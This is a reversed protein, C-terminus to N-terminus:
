IKEIRVPGELYGHPNRLVGRQLYNVVKIKIERSEEPSIYKVIWGDRVGCERADEPNIEIYEDPEERPMFASNKLMADNHWFAAIRDSIVFLPFENYQKLLRASETFKYSLPKGDLVMIEQILDKKFVEYNINAFELSTKAIERMIEKPSSFDPLKGLKKAIDLIIQWGPRANYLPEVVKTIKQVKGETNTFTGEQEAFSVIPLIVNALQATQTMFMDQVVLFECSKLNKYEDGGMVAPNECVIYRSRVSTNDVQKHNRSFIEAGKSNCLPYLPIVSARHGIILSLGILSNSIERDKKCDGSTFPYVILPSDAKMLLEAVGRITEEPIGSQSSVSSSDYRQLGAELDRPIDTAKKLKMLEASIGNILIAETQPRPHLSNKSFRSFPIGFSNIAITNKGAELANIVRGGFHPHQLKPESNVLIILDSKEADAMNRSLKNELGQETMFPHPILNSYISINDTKLIERALLNLLFLEENTQRGSGSISIANSGEESIIKSWSAHIKNIAEEWNTERFNGDKEKIMPSKIREPSNVFQHVTWGRM